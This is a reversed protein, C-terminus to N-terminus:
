RVSTQGVEPQVPLVGERYVCVSEIVNVNEHQLQKRPM